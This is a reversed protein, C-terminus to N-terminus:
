WLKAVCRASLRDGQQVPPPAIWGWKGCTGVGTNMTFAWYDEWNPGSCSHGSSFRTDTWYKYGTNPLVLSPNAVSLDAYESLTPLEFGSALPLGDNYTEAVQAAVGAMFSGLCFDSAARGEFLGVSRGSRYADGWIRGTETDLWVEFPYTRGVAYPINFRHLLMFVRGSATPTQCLSGPALTRPNVGSTCYPVTDAQAPVSFVWSVLLVLGFLRMASHEKKPQIFSLLSRITIM